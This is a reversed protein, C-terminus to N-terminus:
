LNDEIRGVSESKGTMPIDQKTIQFHFQPFTELKVEKEVEKVDVETKKGM